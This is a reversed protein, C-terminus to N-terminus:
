EEKKIEIINANSDVQLPSSKSIIQLEGDIDILSYDDLMDSTISLKQVKEGKAILYDEIKSGYEKM